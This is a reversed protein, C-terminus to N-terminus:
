ETTGFGTKKGKDIAPIGKIMWEPAPADKLYHDFFQMMRIDLDKMNARRSLNHEDGNYNLLWVPKGLRRLATFLEIGQYWPVAGDGDNSMILLPTEIKDAKFLPSNEIYLDPREWLTAGIRSQGEEYQFQRVVGSEWRIGGYASTMNSVPAGAMAAKFMKNTRTVLWATQYGGWSQGQLGMRSTDVYGRSAIARTGSVIADLASQGPFGDRYSIDPIFVLYGNSSCYTPSIISRSPKPVYHQHLKDAYKEYFYILMPYKASSDFDEPKYLLGEAEKGDPLKWKVLEVSGWLYDNQQPNADSIKQQGSFDDGSVWLDPFQNFNGKTWFLVGAKKARAPNSYKYPGKELKVLSASENRNTKYFGGDKTTEDFASLIFGEDQGIYPVDPNLSLNRFIINGKRGEGLTIDEPNKKGSPDLGWLDFQDYVVFQRDNKTWGAYGASGPISPVDHKEDYFVIGSGASHKITKRQKLDMSYWLSDYKNYWALYKQTTSLSVPGDHKTLLKERKGTETDILYVDKNNADKWSTEVMYPDESFGLAYRGDGKFGTTIDKVTEDALRILRSNEPHYVTLFTRKKETDLQKLQQPQLQPDKWHWLDVKAKEDETLTDKPEPRPTPAIGFFLKSGDQSFWVKGNEGPSFGAPLQASATDAATILQNKYYRLSYRKVEATDSSHMFALQSGATDVSLDCIKGENRFIDEQKKTTTAFLSIRSVPISDSRYSAFALTKGNESIAYTTISDWTFILSDSPFILKLTYIETKDKKRSKPETKKEAATEAKKIIGSSDVSTTDKIELPKPTELLAVLFNGAKVSLSFSKLDAFRYVRGNFATIGLSDKPLEDKKKGNLKAKRVEKFPTKVKYAIFDNGTSFASEYGRFITDNIKNGLRNLILTGDGTQPNVEYGVFNGDNSIQTREINKWNDYVDPNLPKKDQANSVLNFLLIVTLSLLLPPKM